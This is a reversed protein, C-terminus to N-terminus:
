KKTGFVAMANKFVSKVVISIFEPVSSAETKKSMGIIDSAAGYAFLLVISWDVKALLEKM